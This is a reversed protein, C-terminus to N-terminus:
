GCCRSSTRTTSTFRSPAPTPSASKRAPSQSARMRLSPRRPRNHLRTQLSRTLMRVMYLGIGHGPAEGPHRGRSFAQFLVDAPVDNLGPGEDAVEVVLEDDDVHASVTVAGGAGYKAANELLNVIIAVFRSPATSIHM